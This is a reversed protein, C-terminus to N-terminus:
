YIVATQRLRRESGQDSVVEVAILYTGPTVLAGDDAHGDWDVSYQGNTAQVAVLRRVRRGSLDYVDITVPSPTVLHQVTYTIKMQDNIGDGNPSFAPMSLSLPGVVTSGLSVRVLLNNTDIAPTADGGETLLPLEVDDAFARGQFRTGYRFVASDFVIEISAGDEVVRPLLLSFHDDVIDTVTIDGGRLPPITAAAIAGFEGSAVIDGAANRVSVSHIATVRAPTEVDFRTFGARGGRNVVKAVLTFSTPASIEAEAPHVEAILGDVPPSAFDFALQALARASGLTGNFFDIRFQLFRRPAPLSLSQGNSVLQWQGWNDTDTKKIVARGDRLLREYSAQTLPNGQDDNPSLGTRVGGVLIERFFADPSDDSGSRARVEISSDRPDGAVAELWRIQGWVSEDGLAFPHSEYSAEPVFGTGFIEIEDIEFGANIVSKLQLFRVFQADIEVVVTTDANDTNRSVPSVFNPQGSAFLNEPQGDNIYLEYGRMFENAFPFQPTMRPYFLIRNVGFRAGLDIFITIGNNQIPRGDVPKRDFALKHDGSLVGELQDRDVQEDSLNIDIEGGRDLLGLSINVDPDVRVPVIWNSQDQATGFLPSDGDIVTEIREVFDIVGGPTTGSAQWPHDVGGVVFEAGFGPRCLLLLALGWAGAIFRLQIARVIKGAFHISAASIVHEGLVTGSSPLGAATEAEGGVVM